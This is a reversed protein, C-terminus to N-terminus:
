PRIVCPLHRFVPPHREILRANRHRQRCYPADGKRSFYDNVTASIDYVGARTNSVRLSFAKNGRHGQASKKRATELVKAQSAGESGASDIDAKPPLASM